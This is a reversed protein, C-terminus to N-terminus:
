TNPLDAAMKAFAYATVTNLGVGLAQVVLQSPGPGDDCNTGGANTQEGFGPGAPSNTEHFAFSLLATWSSIGTCATASRGGMFTRRLNVAIEM